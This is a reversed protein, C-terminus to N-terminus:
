ADSRDMESMLVERSLETSREAAECAAVIERGYEGNALPATDNEIADLLNAWQAHMVNWHEIEVPEFSTDQCLLLQNDELRIIGHSGTFEATFHETGFRYGAHIITAVVGNEFHLMAMGSDAAGYGYIENSVKAKVSVIPSGVIRRLRDVLHPGNMWWMGGGTEKLLFWPPRDSSHFGKFWSDTAFVLKGIEGSHIMERAKVNQPVFNHHHGIAVKLGAKRQATLIEDCEAASLAMPKEIMLHKGAELAKVAMPLHLHHPLGIAVVNVDDREILEESSAFIQCQFQEELDAHRELKPEAIGVLKLQDLDNATGAHAGVVRGGGLIAVGLSM